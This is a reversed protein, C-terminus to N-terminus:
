NVRLFCLKLGRCRRRSAVAGAGPRQDARSCESSRNQDTFDTIGKSVGDGWSRLVRLQIEVQVETVGLAQFLDWLKLLPPASSRGNRDCKGNNNQQLM